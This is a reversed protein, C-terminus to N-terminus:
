AAEEEDKVEMAKAQEKTVTMLTSDDTTRIEMRDTDAKYYVKKDWDYEYAQANILQQLLAPTVDLFIYSPMQVMIKKAM